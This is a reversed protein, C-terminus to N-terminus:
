SKKPISDMFRRRVVLVGVIDERHLLPAILLARYGARLIIDNIPSSPEAALDAVQIPERRTM